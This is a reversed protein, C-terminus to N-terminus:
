YQGVTQQVIDWLKKRDQTVQRWNGIKMGRLDEEVQKMLKERSRGRGTNDMVRTNIVEKVISGGNTRM